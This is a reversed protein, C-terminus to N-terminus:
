VTFDYGQVPVAYEGLEETVPLITLIMGNENFMDYYHGVSSFVVEYGKSELYNTISYLLVNSELYSMYLMANLQIWVKKSSFRPLDNLIFDCANKVFNEESVYPTEYIPPEGALGKGFLLQGEENVMVIGSSIQNNAKELLLNIENLNKGQNAAQNAIKTLLLIGTLGAREERNEMSSFLSDRVSCLRAEIGENALLEIAMDNNLVDGAYNNTLIIVGKGQDMEKALNYIAYANPATDMEGMCIGDALNEAIIGPFLQGLGGGGDVLVTVRNPTLKKKVLSYGYENPIQEYYGKKTQMIGLIERELLQEDSDVLVARNRVKQLM